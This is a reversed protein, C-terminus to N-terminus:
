KYFRMYSFFSNNIQINLVNDFDNTLLGRNQYASKLSRELGFHHYTGGRIERYVVSRLTLVFSRADSPIQLHPVYPLLYKLIASMVNQRINYRIFIRTLRIRFRIHDPEDMSPEKRLVNSNENLDALSVKEIESDSLSNMERDSEQPALETHTDNPPEDNGAIRM